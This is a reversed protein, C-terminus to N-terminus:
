HFRKCKQEGQLSGPNRSPNGPEDSRNWGDACCRTQSEDSRGPEGSEIRAGAVVTLAATAVSAGCVGAWVWLMESLRNM